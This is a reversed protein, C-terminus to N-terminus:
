LHPVKCIVSQRRPGTLLPLENVMHLEVGVENNFLELCKQRLLQATREQFLTGPVVLVEVMRPETQVARYAAVNTFQDLCEEVQCASVYGGKPLLITQEIRGHVRELMPGNWGCSCPRGRWKAVDGLRYRILPMTQNALATVVIEGVEDPGAVWGGRLIEIRVLDFNVHLGDHRSCEAAIPGFEWAQYFDTPVVGLTQSIAERDSPRLPEGWSLVSRLRFELPQTRRIENVLRSLIWLPAALCDPMVRRLVRLHEPTTEFLSVYHRRGHLFRERWGPQLPTQNPPLVWLSTYRGELGSSEITRREIARLTQCEEPSLYVQLSTEDRGGRSRSLCASRDVGRALFAEPDHELDSPLTLPLLTLDKLHRLDRVTLGHQRIRKEYFPVNTAAHEFLAHLRVESHHEQQEPSWSVREAIDKYRIRGM